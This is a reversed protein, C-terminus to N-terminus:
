LPLDDITLEGPVSGAEEEELLPEVAEEQSKGLDQNEYPLVIMVPKGNEVIIIKGKDKQLIRKLDELDM